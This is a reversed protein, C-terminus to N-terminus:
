EKSIGMGTDSVTIVIYPGVKAEINMQAYHADVWFNRASIQLTGGDPM